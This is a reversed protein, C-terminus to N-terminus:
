RVCTAHGRHFGGPCRMQVTVFNCASKDAPAIRSYHGNNLGAVARMSTKCSASNVGFVKRSYKGLTLKEGVTSFDMPHSIVKFYDPIDLAVPDVPEKFYSGNKHSKCRKLLLHAEHVWDDGEELANGEDKDARRACTPAPNANPQVYAHLQPDESAGSLWIALDPIISDSSETDRDQQYREKLATRM